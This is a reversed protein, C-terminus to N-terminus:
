SDPHVSASNASPASNRQTIWARGPSKRRSRKSTTPTKQAQQTDTGV